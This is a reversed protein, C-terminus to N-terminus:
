LRQRRQRDGGKARCNKLADANTAAQVCSKQTQLNNIRQDIRQLTEAKRQAFNEAPASAAFGSAVNITLLAFSAALVSTKILRTNM